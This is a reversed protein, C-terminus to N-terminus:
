ISSTPFSVVMRHCITENILTGFIIIIPCENNWNNCFIYDCAKKSVCHLLQQVTTLVNSRPLDVFPWRSHDLWTIEWSLYSCYDTADADTRRSRAGPIRRQRSISSEILGWVEVTWFRGRLSWGSIRQVGSWGLAADYVSIYFIGRHAVHRHREMLSSHLLYNKRQRQWAAQLTETYGISVFM